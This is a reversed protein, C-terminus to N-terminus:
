NCMYPSVHNEAYITRSFFSSGVAPVASDPEKLSQACFICVPLHFFLLLYSNLLSHDVFDDEQLPGTIRTVWSASILLIMIQLWEWALIEQSGIEFIVWYLFPSTSHSL